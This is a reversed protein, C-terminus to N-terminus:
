RWEMKKANRKKGKKEKGESCKGGFEMDKCPEKNNEV